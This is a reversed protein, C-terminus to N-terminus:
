AFIYQNKRVGFFLFWKMRMWFTGGERFASGINCKTKYTSEKLSNNGHYYWIVYGHYFEKMEKLTRVERALKEMSGVNPNKGIKYLFNSYFTPGLNYLESYFNNIAKATTWGDYNSYRGPPVERVVCNKEVVSSDRECEM